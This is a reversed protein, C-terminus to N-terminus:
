LRLGNQLRQGRCHHYYYIELTWKKSWLLSAGWKSNNKLWRVIINILRHRPPERLVPSSFRQWINNSRCHLRCFASCLFGFLSDTVLITILWRIFLSIKIAFWFFSPSKFVSVKFYKQTKAFSIISLLPVRSLSKNLFFLLKNLLVKLISSFLPFLSRSIAMM